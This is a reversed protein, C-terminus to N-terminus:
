EGDLESNFIDDDINQIAEMILPMCHAITEINESIASMDLSGVLNSSDFLETIKSLSEAINNLCKPISQPNIREGNNLDDLANAIRFLSANRHENQIRQRFLEFDMGGLVISNLEGNLVTVGNDLTLYEPADKNLYLEIGDEDSPVNADKDSFPRIITVHDLNILLDGLLDKGYIFM